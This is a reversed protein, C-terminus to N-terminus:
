KNCSVCPLYEESEFCGFRRSAYRGGKGKCQSCVEKNNKDKVPKSVKKM